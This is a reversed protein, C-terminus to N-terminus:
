SRATRIFRWHASGVVTGGVRGVLTTRLHNVLGETPLHNQELLSLVREADEPEATEIRLADM